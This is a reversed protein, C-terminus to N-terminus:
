WWRTLQVSLGDHSWWRTVQVCLDDHSWWRTVRLKDRGFSSKPLLFLFHCGSKRLVKWPHSYEIQALFCQFTLRFYPNMKQGDKWFRRKPLMFNHTPCVSRWPTREDVQSNSPCNTMRDDDQSNSLCITMHEDDQSNSPCNTMRDDDQSNSMCMTMCDDDHSEFNLTPCVCRWAMM